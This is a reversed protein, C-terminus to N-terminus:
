VRRFETLKLPSLGIPFEVADETKNSFTQSSVITDVIVLRM